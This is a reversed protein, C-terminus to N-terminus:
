VRNRFNNLVILYYTVPLHPDTMGGIKSLDINYEDFKMRGSSLVFSTKALSYKGSVNQGLIPGVKTTMNALMKMLYAPSYNAQVYYGIPFSGQVISLNCFKLLKENELMQTFYSLEQEADERFAHNLDSVLAKGDASNDIAYVQNRNSAIKGFAKLTRNTGGDNNYDVGVLSEWTGAPASGWM